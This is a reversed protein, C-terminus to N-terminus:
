GAGSSIVRTVLTEVSIAINIAHGYENITLKQSEAGLLTADESRRNVILMKM